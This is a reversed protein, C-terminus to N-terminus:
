RTTRSGPRGGAEREGLTAVHVAHEALQVGGLLAVFTGGVVAVLRLGPQRQEPQGAAAGLGGEGRDAPEEGLGGVGDAPGPQQRGRDLDQQGAVVGDSGPRNGELELRDGAVEAVVGEGRHGRM